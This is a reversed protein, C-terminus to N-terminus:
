HKGCEILAPGQQAEIVSTINLGASALLAAYEDRSRERGGGMVLVEIDLLKALPFGAAPELLYEVVWLKSEAKMSRAVNQLIRRCAGDEWDHLVNVLFYASCVPPPKKFFDSPVAKCRDQLGAAAIEKEAPGVAGPLDAVIGELHPYAALLRMLFVGRGGGVDCISRLVKLDCAALITEAFGAAKVGQAQDLLTREGPHEELWEFAPKGFVHDFAPEGTRVTHGLGGWVKDHWLSLFMRVMPRLADSQLCRSLPTLDFVGNETEIFIGVACLARLVRYLAPGHTGTREALADASEPGGKLLDAIGLDSVVRLPHTIWKSTIWQMMQDQPALANEPM